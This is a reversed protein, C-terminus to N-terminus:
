GEIDFDDGFLDEAASEDQGSVEDDSYRLMDDDDGDASEAKRVPAGGNRLADREAAM